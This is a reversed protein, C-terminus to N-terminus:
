TLLDIYTIIVVGNRYINCLLEAIKHVPLVM